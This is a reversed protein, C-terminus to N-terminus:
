GRKRLGRFYSSPDGEFNNRNIRYNRGPAKMTKKKKGGGFISALICLLLVALGAVAM